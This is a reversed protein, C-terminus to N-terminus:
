EVIERMEDLIQQAREPHAEMEKTKAAIWQAEQRFLRNLNDEYVVVPFENKRLAVLYDDLKQKIMARRTAKRTGEEEIDTFGAERLDLVRVLHWGAPSEVPGGLQDLDLSFTLDDLEPFGSGKTVWGFDGLTRKANPDISHELVAQYITIEGAEIGAKIEEAQEKTPLVVMQIRRREKIAIRDKNAEYYARLEEDSPEMGRVLIERHLNLLRTKRFEALRKQFNSDRDLGAERGKRAMLEQDILGNLSEIRHELDVKNNLTTLRDKVESWTIRRDGYEAVVEDDGRITDEAVDLNDVHIVVELGERLRERNSAARSTFKKNRITAEVSVRLRDTIETDATFNERIFADVEAPTVQIEGVLYDRRYLEALIADSFAKLDKRYAPDQDTGRRIADLYLLNASIAKDLLALIVKNREASGLVPVSLGVVASSNLQTNLQAYTITQDGVRAVSDAPQGEPVQPSEARASTMLLTSFAILLLRKM